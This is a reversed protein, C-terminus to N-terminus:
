GGDPPERNLTTEKKTVVRNYCWMELNVVRKRLSGLTTEHLM